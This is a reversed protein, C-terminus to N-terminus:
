ERHGNIHGTKGGQELWTGDISARLSTNTVVISNTTVYIGNTTTYYQESTTFSMNRNLVINGVMEVKFGAASVGNVDYGYSQTVENSSMGATSTLGIYGSYISGNNDTFTVANGSQQITFTNIVVGSGGPKLQSATSTQYTARIALGAGPDDTLVFTYAGSDWNINGSSFGAGTLIGATNATASLSGVYMTFGSAYHQSLPVTGSYTKQGAVTTGLDETSTGTNDYGLDSYNSVLFKGYYGVYTGSVNQWDGSENFSQASGGAQWNGECGTLIATMLGFTTVGILAKM